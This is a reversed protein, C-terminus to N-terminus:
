FGYGINLGYNDIKRTDLSKTYFVPTISINRTPYISIGIRFRNRSYLGGSVLDGQLTYFKSPRYRLGILSNTNLQDVFEFINKQHQWSVLLYLDQPRKGNFRVGAGLGYEYIPKNNLVGISAGIALLLSVKRPQDLQSTLQPNEAFTYTKSIGPLFKRKQFRDQNNNIVIQILNIYDTNVLEDMTSFHIYITFRSSTLEAINDPSLILTEDDAVRFRQSGTKEDIKLSTNLLYTITYTNYKPIQNQVQRLHEQFSNLLNIWDDKHEPHGLYSSIMEVKVFQEDFIKLSDRKIKEQGQVCVLFFWSLVFISSVRKM